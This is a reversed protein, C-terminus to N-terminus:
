TGIWVFFKHCISQFNRYVKLFFNKSFSFMQTKLLLVNFKQEREGKLLAKYGGQIRIQCELRSGPLKIWIRDLFMSLPNRSFIRPGEQITLQNVICELLSVQLNDYKPLGIPKM